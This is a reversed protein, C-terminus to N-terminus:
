GEERGIPTLQNTIKARSASTFRFILKTTDVLQGYVPSITAANVSWRCDRADGEFKTDVALLTGKGYKHGITLRHPTIIEATVDPSLIFNLEFNHEVGTVISDALAISKDGFVIKRSYAVGVDQFGNHEGAFIATSEDSKWEVSKVAATEKWSFPGAPCSSSRGGVTLCNHMSTSRFHDRLELDSTYCYTGAEVFVPEGRMSLVVGLADAHAHAGSMFGHPGCDILMCTADNEWSTRLSVLGSERFFRQRERPAKAPIADYHASREAGVLWLLEASADGALYRLRPDEFLLAGLALTSRHDNIDAGDLFHLRGGDDDGIRPSVCGPLMSHALFEILRQIRERTQPGTESGLARAILLYSLYIDATYRHYHTSQEVYGGDDRVQKFLESVLVSESMIRWRNAEALEPIAAGLVFLALAEGTLHTNPSSFTSLNAEIHRGNAQLNKLMTVLDVGTFSDSGVFFNIAWIWSISRYAIELSSLWNVGLKIPNKRTWDRIHGLATAAYRENGTLVFAQGLTTLYQHRNIEWVIKKDGSGDADLENLRSRHLLESRKGSIPERHWDPPDGVNLEGFGLVKLKGSCITEAAEIIRAEEEPFRIRLEAVTADIETFSSYFAATRDPSRFYNLLETEDAVPASLSRLFAADDPLRLDGSVGALEAYSAVRQRTREALENLSRGKLKRLKSIM